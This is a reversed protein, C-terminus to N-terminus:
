SRPTCSYDLVLVLNVLASLDLVGGPALSPNSAVPLTLVWDGLANGGTAPSWSSGTTQSSVAGTSDTVGTVAAKGPATLSLTIGAASTGPQMSTLVSV